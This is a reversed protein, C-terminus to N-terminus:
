FILTYLKGSLSPYGMRMSMEFAVGFRKKIPVRTELGPLVTFFQKDAYGARVKAYLMLKRDVVLPVSVYLGHFSHPIGIEPQPQLEMQYFVGGGWRQNFEMGIAGGTQPGTVPYETHLSLLMQGNVAMPAFALIILLKFLHKNFKIKM